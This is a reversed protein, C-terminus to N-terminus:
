SMQKTPPFKLCKPKENKGLKKAYRKYQCEENESTSISDSSMKVSDSVSKEGILTLRICLLANIKKEQLYLRATDINREM